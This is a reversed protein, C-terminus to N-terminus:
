NKRVPKYEVGIGQGHGDKLKKDILTTRKRKSM